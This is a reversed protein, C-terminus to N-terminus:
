PCHPSNPDTVHMSHPRPVAPLEPPAQFGPTHTGHAVPDKAELGAVVTHVAQEAPVKPVTTPALTHAVQGSPVKLEPIPMVVLAVQREQAAPVYTVPMPDDM